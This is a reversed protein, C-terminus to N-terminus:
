RRLEGLYWRRRPEVKRTLGFEHMARDRILSTAEEVSDTVHIRALDEADIAHSGQLTSRLFGILPTWYEVGM